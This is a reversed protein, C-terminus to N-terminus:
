LFFHSVKYLMLNKKFDDCRLAVASAICCIM